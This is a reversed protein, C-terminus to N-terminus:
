APWVTYSKTAAQLRHAKELAVEAWKTPACMGKGGRGRRLNSDLLHVVGHVFSGLSVRLFHVCPGNRACITLDVSYISSGSAALMCQLPLSYFAPGYGLRPGSRVTRVRDLIHDLRRKRSNSLM